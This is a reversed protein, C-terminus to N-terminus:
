GRRATVSPSDSPFTRTLHPLTSDVTAFAGGLRPARDRRRLLQANPVRLQSSRHEIAAAAVACASSFDSFSEASSSRTPTHQEGSQKCQNTRFRPRWQSHYAHHTRIIPKGHPSPRTRCVYHSKRSSTLAQAARSLHALAEGLSPPRSFAERVKLPSLFTRALFPWLASQM